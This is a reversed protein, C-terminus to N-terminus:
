SNNGGLYVGAFYSGLDTDITLTSGSGQAAYIEYYDGAQAYDITSITVLGTNPSGHVAKSGFNLLVGNKYLAIWLYAGNPVNRLGLTSTFLYYGNNPANFRYSTSNYYNGNDFVKNNFAIKTAAGSTISQTSSMTARFALPNSLAPGTLGSVTANSFDVTGNFVFNGLFTGSLIEGPTHFGVAYVIGFIFFLSIIVGFGFYIGEKIKSLM